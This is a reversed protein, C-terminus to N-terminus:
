AALQTEKALRILASHGYDAGCGKCYRVHTNLNFRITTGCHCVATLPKPPRAGIILAECTGRIEQLDGAFANIAEHQRVATDLNFRLTAVAQDLRYQPRGVGCRTAYGRSAWDGVWEELDNVLGGDASQSLPEMRAPIPASKSGSVRPGHGRAGPELEGPIAAFLGSVLRGAQWTVPGALAALDAAIRLQCPPCAYRDWENDRLDRRCVICAPPQADLM